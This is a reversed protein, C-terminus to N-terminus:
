CSFPRAACPIMAERRWAQAAAAARLPTALVLFRAASSRAARIARASWGGPAVVVARHARFGLSGDPSPFCGAGHGCPRPALQGTAEAVGVATAGQGLLAVAMRDDLVDPLPVASAAPLIALEAYGGGSTAGVVQRGVTRADVGAGVAVVTGAVEFGPVFPLPLNPLAARMLGARIQVDAFGIGAATVRVLMEGSGPRPDPVEDVRLM